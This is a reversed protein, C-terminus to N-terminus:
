SDPGPNTALAVIDDLSLAAGEELLGEYEEKGLQAAVATRCRDNFPQNVTVIASGCREILADAVGYLRAARRRNASLSDAAALHTVANMMMWTDRLRGLIRIARRALDQARAYEGLRVTVRTRLTLIAAMTWPACGARAELECAELLEDAERLRGSEALILGELARSFVAADLQAQRRSVAEGEDRTRAALASRGEYIAVLSRMALTWPLTRPDAASRHLRAAEDFRAAADAHRGRVFLM